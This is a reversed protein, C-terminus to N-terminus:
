RPFATSDALSMGLPPPPILLLPIIALSLKLRAEPQKASIPLIDSEENRIMPQRGDLTMKMLLKDEMCLTDEILIDDEM